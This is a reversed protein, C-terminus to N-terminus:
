NDGQHVQTEHQHSPPGWPGAVQIRIDQLVDLFFEDFLRKDSVTALLCKESYDSPKNSRSLATIDKKFHFLCASAAQM